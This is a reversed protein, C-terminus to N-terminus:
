VIKSVKKPSEIVTIGRRKLEPNHRNIYAIEEEDTMKALKANLESRTKYLQKMSESLYM